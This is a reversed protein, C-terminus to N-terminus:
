CLVVSRFSGNVGIMEVAGLLMDFLATSEACWGSRRISVCVASRPGIVLDPSLVTAMQHASQSGTITESGLQMNGRKKRYNM